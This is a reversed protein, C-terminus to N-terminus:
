WLRLGSFQIVAACALVFALIGIGVYLMNIGGREGPTPGGLMGEKLRRRCKRCRTLVRGNKTGCYSCITSLKANCIECLELDAPNLHECKPCLVGREGSPDAAEEVKEPAVSNPPIDSM